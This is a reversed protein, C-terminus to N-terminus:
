LSTLLVADAKQNNLCGCLPPFLSLFDTCMHPSLCLSLFFSWLLGSTKVEPYNGTHMCEIAIFFELLDQPLPLIQNESNGCQLM